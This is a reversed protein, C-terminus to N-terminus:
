AHDEGLRRNRRLLFYGTLMALGMGLLILTALEPVPAIIGAVSTSDLGDSATNYRNTNDGDDQLNAVLDYEHHTIQAEAPITWIATPPFGGSENGNDPGTTITEQAGSPDQEAVLSDQASTPDDQIWLTYTRNPALGSGRMYVTDGPIFADTESGDSICSTVSPTSSSSDLAIWDFNPGGNATISEFKVTNDGADLTVGIVQERWATWAGTPLFSLSESIVEGNVYVKMPRDVTGDYGYRIVLEKAGASAVNFTTEIYSGV